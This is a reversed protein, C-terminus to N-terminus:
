VKTQTLEIAQEILELRRKNMLFKKNSSSENCFNLAFLIFAISPLMFKQIISYNTPHLIISFLKDISINPFRIMLDLIFICIALLILCFQFTKSFQKEEIEFRENSFEIKKQVAKLAQLRVDVGCKEDNKVRKECLNRIIRREDVLENKEQKNRNRLHFRSSFRLRISKHFNDLKDFTFIAINQESSLEDRDGDQEKRNRMILKSDGWTEPRVPKDQELFKDLEDFIFIVDAEFRSDTM